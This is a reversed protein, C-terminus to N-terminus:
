ANKPKVHFLISYFLPLLMLTVITGVFLGGIITVALSGYMPDSILPILGVITTISALMVPRVRSLTARIIADYEHVNEETTLRNVEDVLVISNKVMMGILGMFGLIAMFTFPTDTLLLLPVIGCLVFPFCILILFVKKWRNFLLLLVAFVIIMILPMFGLIAQNAEGSIELEGVWRMHYGPPLPISDIAPRILEMVAAPSADPNFPDPDAEAQIARRGNFRSILSENWVIGTSDIVTSMLTTRFLNDSIEQQSTAGTLLGSVAAPDVHINLTSWVPITTLDDIRSGDSQRMTVYVPVMKDQDNIVGVAMGDTAAQLANAVDSRSIGARQAGEQSYNFTLQHSPANWNNQVSYPDILPCNRMIEEAQASLRRLVAPDPGSFEAEITHTSSISFNYKRSRIYAEPAISRLYALLDVSLKQMTKFDRTDVILEAYNNGGSPMPRVFCYRAPAGGTSLAVREVDPFALASDSLELMRASVADPDSQAPFYCELVFQKYDFDPFFINRVFKMSYGAVGLVLVAIIASITKHGILFVIIREIVRYIIGPRKEATDNKKEKDEKPLWAASCVPVQILALVWSVLLSVCIVLFLDGAFEGTSGPSLYIPLFTCAAIITAGLLPFATNKGIRFLYQSAPLGRKRDVLIGDMIVVSNDVLMGMAVIFAGLSIRQLTTGLHELIPFSLAVTLILGLGIIVGSRWGMTFILLVIVILVSELLNIMFSSIAESVKDPQFFIKEVEMGAPFREMVEAIRADIAKGVDPVIASNELTITFTLAPQGNVYFVNSAPTSYTRTVKALDRLRVKKGEPTNILLNRLDEEDNVAETVDIALRDDAAVLAGANVTKIASQLAMMIQSPILGNRSLQEPTFEIEIVESRTGGINIRKVGPVTVLDRRLEKAYKEMEKYTYGDGKFAYFIGYVDLMDDVVVPAYCGSPLKQASDSVKRRLLDFHQEIESIPMEKLFEVNIMAQGPRAESKIKYVDPLTRLEDELMQVVDLEVTHADAGPYIVVVSAQKIPVAPDELKPMNRFSLVGLIIIAVMLTWFLTPRELFFRAVRTM